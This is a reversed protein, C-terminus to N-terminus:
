EGDEAEKWNGGGCHHDCCGDHACTDCTRRKKSQRALEEWYESPWRDYEEETVFM